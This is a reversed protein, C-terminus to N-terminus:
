INIQLRVIIIECLCLYKYFLYKYSANKKYFWGNSQYKKNHLIKM